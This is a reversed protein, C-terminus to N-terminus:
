IARYMGSDQRHEKGRTCLQFGVGRIRLTLRIRRQTTM